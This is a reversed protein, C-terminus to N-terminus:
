SGEPRARYALAAGRGYDAVRGRCSSGVRSRGIRQRERVYRPGRDGGGVIAVLVEKDDHDAEVMGALAWSPVRPYPAHFREYITRASLRSLMAELAERDATSAPRVSLGSEPLTFVGHMGAERGRDHGTESAVRVSTPMVIEM